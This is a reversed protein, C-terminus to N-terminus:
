KKKAAAIPLQADRWASMGGSLAAPKQFGLEALKRVAHKARVGSQCVTVVPKEKYRSIEKVRKPIDDAPLNVARVIHGRAFEASSRVDLFVGNEREVIQVARGPELSVVASRAFSWSLGGGSALALAVWHWNALLFDTM